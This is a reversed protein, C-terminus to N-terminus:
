KKKGVYHPRCSFNVSNKGTLGGPGIQIDNLGKEIMKELEAGRANSNQTGIPRLLAKKVAEVLCSEIEDIM